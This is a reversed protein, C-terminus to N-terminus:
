NLHKDSNAKELENREIIQCIQLASICYVEIQM